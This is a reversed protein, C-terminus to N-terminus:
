GFVSTKESKVKETGAETSKMILPSLAVLVHWCM